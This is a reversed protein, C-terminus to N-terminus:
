DVDAYPIAATITGSTSIGSISTLTVSAVKSSFVFRFQSFGDSPYVHESSGLVITDGNTDLQSRESTIWQDIADCLVARIHKSTTLYSCTDTITFDVNTGSPNSKTVTFSGIPYSHGM